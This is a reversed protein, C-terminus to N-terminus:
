LILNLYSKFITKKIFFLLLFKFLRNYEELIGEIEEIIQNSNAM